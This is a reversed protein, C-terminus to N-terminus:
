RGVQDCHQRAGPDGNASAYCNARLWARTLNRDREHSQAWEQFRRRDAEDADQIAQEIGLLREGMAAGQQILLDERSVVREILLYAILLIALIAIGSTGLSRVAGPVDRLDPMSM